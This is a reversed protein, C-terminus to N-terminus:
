RTGGGTGPPAALRPRILRLWLLVLLAAVVAFPLVAGLAVALWRLMTM